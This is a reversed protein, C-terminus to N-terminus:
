KDGRLYKTEDVVALWRKVAFEDKKFEDFTFEGGWKDVAGAICALHYASELRKREERQQQTEIPRFKVGWFVKRYRNGHCIVAVAVEKSGTIADLVKVKLWKSEDFCFCECEVGAPPLGCGNWEHAPNELAKAKVVYIGCDAETPMNIIYESEVAMAKGDQGVIVDGKVARRGGALFSKLTMCYDKPKCRHHFGTANEKTSFFGKDGLRRAASYYIESDPNAIKADQYTKYQM